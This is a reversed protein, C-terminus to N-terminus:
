KNFICFSFIFRDTNVDPVSGDTPWRMLLLNYTQEAKAQTSDSEQVLVATQAESEEEEEKGSGQRM